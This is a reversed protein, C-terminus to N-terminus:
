IQRRLMLRKGNRVGDYVDITRKGHWNTWLGYAGALM